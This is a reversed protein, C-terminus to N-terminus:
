HMQPTLCVNGHGPRRRRVQLTFGCGDPVIGTGFGMYNSNIFSCGNGRRDAVAFYVTDDGRPPAEEGPKVMSGAEVPVVQVPTLKICEPLTHRFRNEGADKQGSYRSLHLAEFEVMHISISAACSAHRVHDAATVKHREEAYQKSLLREVPVHVVDSDANYALADAFASRMAAVAKHLHQASGWPLKGIEPELELISMAMLAAIGQM